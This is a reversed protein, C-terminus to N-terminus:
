RPRYALAMPELQYYDAARQAARAAKRVLESTRGAARFRRLDPLKTGLLGTPIATPWSKTTSRIWWRRDGSRTSATMMM